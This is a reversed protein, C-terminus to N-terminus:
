HPDVLPGPTALVLYCSHSATLELSGGCEVGGEVMEKPDLVHYLVAAAAM